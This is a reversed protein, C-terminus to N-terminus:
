AGNSDIGKHYHIGVVPIVKHLVNESIWGMANNSNGFIRVKLRFTRSKDNVKMKKPTIPAPRALTEVISSTKNQPPLRETNKNVVNISIRLRIEQSLLYFQTGVQIGYVLAERTYTYSAIPVWEFM